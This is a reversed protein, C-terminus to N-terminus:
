KRVSGDWLGLMLLLWVRRSWRAPELRDQANVLRELASREFLDALLGKRALLVDQTLAQLDGRLWKTLPVEFGRKPARIVAEPLYRRALERLLPKTERGRIKLRDPYGSVAEIL